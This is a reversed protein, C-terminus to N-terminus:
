LFEAAVSARFSGQQRSPIEMYIDSVGSLYFFIEEM